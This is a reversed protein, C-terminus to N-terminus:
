SKDAQTHPDEKQAKDAESYGPRALQDKQFPMWDWQGVGDGQTIWGSFFCSESQFATLRIETENTDKNPRVDTIIAALEMEPQIKYLVIRGKTPQM